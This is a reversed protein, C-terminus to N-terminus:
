HPREPKRQKTLRFLQSSFQYVDEAPESEALDAIQKYAEALIEQAKPLLTKNFALTAGYLIREDVTQQEIATRAQELTQAHYQRVASSPIKSQMYLVNADEKARRFTGDPESVLLGVRVLRDIADRITKKDLGAELHEQIWTIDPKFDPLETMTLIAWHYWESAIAFSELTIEDLARLKKPRLKAMMTQFVRREAETTGAHNLVLLEFYRLSKGKLNLNAALKMALDMKLRREGRLVQFLLSPNQYGVQRAWARLSFKPNKKQRERLQANLFTIPDEFYFVASDLLM